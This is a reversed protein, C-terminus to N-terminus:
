KKLYELLKEWEETRRMEMEILMKNIVTVDYLKHWRERAVLTFVHCNKKGIKSEQIRWKYPKREPNSPLTESLVIVAFRDAGVGELEDFDNRIKDNPDEQTGDIRRKGGVANNKIEIVTSLEGHQYPAEMRTNINPKLLLLDIEIDSGEIRAKPESMNLGHKLLHSRIVIETADGSRKEATKERRQKAYEEAVEILMQFEEDNKTLVHMDTM